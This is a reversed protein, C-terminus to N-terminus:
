TLLPRLLGAYRSFAQVTSLALLGSNECKALRDFIWNSSAKPSPAAPSARLARAPPVSARAAFATTSLGAAHGSRAHFRNDLPVIQPFRQRSHLAVLARRPDVA